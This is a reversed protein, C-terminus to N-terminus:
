SVLVELTSKSAGPPIAHNSKQATRGFLKGAVSSQNNNSDDMIALNQFTQSLDQPPPTPVSVNRPPNQPQRQRQPVRPNNITESDSSSQSSDSVSINAGQRTSSTRRRRSRATPSQIPINRDNSTRASFQLIRWPNLIRAVYTDKDFSLWYNLLSRLQKHLLNREGREGYFDTNSDLLRALHQNDRGKFHHLGGNAELDEAFQKKINEPVGRRRPTNISSTTSSISQADM